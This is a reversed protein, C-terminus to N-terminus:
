QSCGQLSNTRTLLTLHASRLSEDHSTAPPSLRVVHHACSEILEADHTIVLVTHGQSALDTFVNSIAQLQRYDVGSTPEDFILLHRRTALAAAIVVRQKQGGSLSLPHRVACTSLDLQDLIAPVDINQHRTGVLVEQQVTQSFLQRHVDQMVIAAHSPLRSPKILSGNISIGGRQPTLLGTLLSALTSKGVGNNGVVCTIEGAPLDLADILVTPSDHHGPYTFELGRISVGESAVDSERRPLPQERWTPRGESTSISSRQDATKNLILSHLETPASFTRLGATRRQEDSQTFFKEGEILQPQQGPTFLVVQDVLNKLFYLRHEAILITKGARKLTALLQTFSEIAELSLNATPEDYLLVPVEAALAAAQAVSQLQGGSLGHLSRNLLHEVGTTRASDISRQLLIERDVRYNEGCYAIESLVQGTFFQTRPNQFVTASHRGIDNLDVENMTHRDVIVEGSFHGPQLHPILGNAMKLATSKGSGSPGCFLTITGPTCSVSLDHFVLSPEEGPPAPYAFTVDTFTVKGDSTSRISKGPDNESSHDKGETLLITPSITM